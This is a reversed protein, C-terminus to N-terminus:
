ACTTIKNATNPRETFDVLFPNPLPSSLLRDKSLSIWCHREKGQGECTEWTFHEVEGPTFQWYRLAPRRVVKYPLFRSKPSQVKKADSIEPSDVLQLGTCHSQIPLAAPLEVIYNNGKGGNNGKVEIRELLCKSIALEPIKRWPGLDYVDLSVRLSHLCRLREAVAGLVAGLQSTKVKLLSTQDPEEDSGSGGIAIFPALENFSSHLVLDLDRIHRIHPSGPKAFFRYAAYLDCFIIKHEEFFSQMVEPYMRKCTRMVTGLGTRDISTPKGYKVREECRWHRHGCTSALRQQWLLLDGTGTHRISDMNTQIRDLDKDDEPYMVCRTQIWHGNKFHLHRGRREHYRRENPSSWLYGYVMQRLELPLKQFFVSQLQEDFAVNTSQTKSQGSQYLVQPKVIDGSKKTKVNKSRTQNGVDKCPSTSYIPSCNSDLKPRFYSRVRSSISIAM